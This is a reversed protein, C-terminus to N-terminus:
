RAVWVSQRVASGADPKNFGAAQASKEKVFCDLENKCGLLNPVVIADARVWEGSEPQNETFKVGAVQAADTPNIGISNKLELYDRGLGALSAIREEGGSSTGAVVVATTVTAVIALAILADLSFAFARM